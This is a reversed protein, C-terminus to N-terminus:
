MGLKCMIRYLSTISRTYGKKCLKVWLVVLGVEKNHAKYRKIMEIEKQTHQNPHSKPRRSKNRLSNPTECKFPIQMSKHLVGVKM